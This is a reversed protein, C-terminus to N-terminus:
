PNINALQLTHTGPTRALDNEQVCLCSATFKCGGGPAVIICARQGESAPFYKLTPASVNYVHTEGSSEKKWNEPGPFGPVEDPATGPWIRFEGASHNSVSQLELKIPQCEGAVCKYGKPCEPEVGYACQINETAAATATSSSTAMAVAVIAAAAAVSFGLRVM